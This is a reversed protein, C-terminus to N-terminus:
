ALHRVAIDGEAELLRPGGMQKTFLICIYQQFLELSSIGNCTVNNLNHVCASGIRSWQHDTTCVVDVAEASESNSLM